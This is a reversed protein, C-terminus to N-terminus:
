EGVPVAVGPPHPLRYRWSPRNGAALQEEKRDLMLKVPAHAERSLKCALFGHPWAKLKSGFGGGMYQTIVHVNTKPIQFHDAINDRYRFTAQTSAWITLQDEEQWHALLGHTEMPNHTQVQTRYTAEVKEFSNNILDDIEDPKADKPYISPGRVNSNANEGESIAYVKPSNENKAEDIDTVFQQTEYEIKILRIAQEALNISEAAVALIEQGAFRLVIPFEDQVFAIAKIGPLSKAKTVDINKVIAAPFPSRLIKGYLMGPLNIDYSYKAKGTTKYKGDIRSVRSGILKLNNAGDWPRPENEPIEATIEELNEPLGVKLKVTKPM